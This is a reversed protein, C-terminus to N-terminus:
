DWVIYTSELSVVPFLVFYIYKGLQKLQEEKRSIFLYKFAVISKREVKQLSDSQKTIVFNVM